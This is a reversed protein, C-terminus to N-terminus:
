YNPLCDRRRYHRKEKGTVNRWEEVPEQVVEINKLGEFLTLFTSKGCGVNGEVLITYPVTKSGLVDNGASYNQKEELNELLSLGVFLKILSIIPEMILFLVDLLSNKQCFVVILRMKLVVLKLIALKASESFSVNM